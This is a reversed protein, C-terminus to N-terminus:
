ALDQMVRLREELPVEEAFTVCTVATGRADYVFDVAERDATAAIQDPRHKLPLEVLNNHPEDRVVTRETM